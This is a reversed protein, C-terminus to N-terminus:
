IGPLTAGLAADGPLPAAAGSGVLRGIIRAAQECVADIAAEAQQKGVLVGDLLFELRATAGPDVLAPDARELVGFLALGRETPVVLKGQAALFDQRKLGKISRFLTTYPFLTSRPPRRIM